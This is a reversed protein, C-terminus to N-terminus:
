ALGVLVHRLAPGLLGEILVLRIKEGAGGGGTNGTASNVGVGLAALRTQSKERRLDVIVGGTLSIQVRRAAKGLPAFLVVDALKHVDLRDVDSRKDFLKLFSKRRRRHLLVQGCKRISKSQSTVPWM